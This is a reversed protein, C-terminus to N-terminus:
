AFITVEITGIGQCMRRIQAESTSAALNEVKVTNTKMEPIKKQQVPTKQLVVRQNNQTNIVSKQANTNTIEQVNIITKQFNGPSKQKVIRQPTGVIKKGINTLKKLVDAQNQGIRQSQYQAVNVLKSQM